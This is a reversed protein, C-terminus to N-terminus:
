FTLLRSAENYEKQNPKVAKLLPEAYVKLVSLEYDLATNFVADANGQFPFYIKIRRKKCRGVNRNNQQLVEELNPM